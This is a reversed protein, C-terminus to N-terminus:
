APPKEARPRYFRHADNKTGSGVRLVDPVQDLDRRITKKSPKPIGGDPWIEHIEEPTLGPPADPLMELLVQIRDAQKADARTGCARYGDDTLELVTEPPTEDFRSLGTLVRRTDDRNSADFRRLEVITDVFGPLAGSGRSATGEQGDSKRPHHILLVGAGAEAIAQLPLLARLIEASENESKVPLFTSLTDFVVLRYGDAAVLGAVHAAFAEWEDWGPKTKFPRCIINVHDGIGLEDRRRKWHIKGEESVVLVKCAAVTGALDGGGEMMRLLHALLTSKGAKYLGVLLTFSVKAIYGQWLWSLKEDGSLQSLPVPTWAPPLEISSLNGGIPPPNDLIANQGNQSPGDRRSADILAAAIEATSGQVNM